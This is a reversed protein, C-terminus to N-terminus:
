NTIPVKRGPLEEWDKGALQEALAGAVVEAKAMNGPDEFGPSRLIQGVRCTDPRHRWRVCPWAM